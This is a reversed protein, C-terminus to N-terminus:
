RMKGIFTYLVTYIRTYPHLKEIDIYNLLYITTITAKTTNYIFLFLLKIFIITNGYYYYLNM